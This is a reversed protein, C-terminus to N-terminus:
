VLGESFDKRATNLRNNSDVHVNTTNKNVNVIPAAQPAPAQVNAAMAAGNQRIASLHDNQTALHGAMTKLLAHTTTDSSESPGTPTFNSAIQSAAADVAGPSASTPAAGKSDPAASASQTQAAVLQGGQQTQAQTAVQAPAGNGGDPAVPNGTGGGGGATATQTGSGGGPAAVTGIQKELGLAVGIRKNAEVALGAQTTAPVEYRNSILRAASAVDQTQKLMEGVRSYSPSSRLEWDVADLQGKLDLALVSPVHFQKQIQAQRATRWQAIGKAVGDPNIAHPDLKSESVLNAVIGTAQAQTWGKGVLYSIAEKARAAVDKSSMSPHPVLGGWASGDMGPSIQAGAASAAETFKFEGGAALKNAYNEENGIQSMAKVREDASKGVFQASRLQFLKRLFESDSEDETFEAALMKAAAATGMQTATSWIAFQIAQSKSAREVLGKPLKKLVDQYPKQDSIKQNDMYAQVGSAMSSDAYTQATNGSTLVSRGLGSPDMAGPAIVAGPNAAANKQMQAMAAMTGLTDAHAQSFGLSKTFKSWLGDKGPILKGDPGVKAKTGFIAHGMGTMGAALYGAGKSVIDMNAVVAGLAAGAAAGWPGFYAGMAGYSAMDAATHGLRNSTSGASTFHNTLADIGYGAIAGLGLKTSALKFGLKPILKAGGWLGKAGLKATGLAAKGGLGLLGSGLGFLGSTAFKTAGWLGKGGLKAAGMLGRGVVPATAGVVPGALNRAGWGVLGAGGKILGGAGRALATGFRYGARGSHIPLRKKRSFIGKIRGLGRRIRGPSRGASRGARARGRRNRRSRRRNRDRSSGGDFDDGDDDDDGNGLFRDLLSRSHHGGSSDEDEDKTFFHLLKGLIGSQKRSEQVQEDRQHTAEDEDHRQGRLRSLLSDYGNTRTPHPTGSDLHRDLRDLVSLLLNAGHGRMSDATNFVHESTPLIRDRLAHLSPAVREAVAERVPEPVHSTVRSAVNEYATRANQQTLTANLLSGAMTPRFRSLRDRLSQVPHPDDRFAETAQRLRSSANRADDRLEETSTPINQAVRTATDNWTHANGYQQAARQARSSVRQATERVDTADPIHEAMSTAFANWAGPSVHRRALDGVTATVRHSVEDTTPINSAVRTALDNWAHPSVYARATKTASEKVREVTEKATRTAADRVTGGNRVPSEPEAPKVSGPNLNPQTQGRILKRGKISGPAQPSGCCCRDLQKQLLDIIDKLYDLVGSQYSQMDPVVFSTNASPSGVLGAAFSATTKKLQETASTTASEAQPAAKETRIGPKVKALNPEDSKLGADSLGVPNGFTDTQVSAGGATDMFANIMDSISSAPLVDRITKSLARARDKTKESPTYKDLASTASSVKDAVTDAASKIVGDNLKETKNRIQAVTKNLLSSVYTRASDALENLDSKNSFFDATKRSLPQTIYQNIRPKAYSAIGKRMTEVTSATWQRRFEARILGLTSSKKADPAGTNIKIAELKSEIVKGLQILNSSVDNLTTNQHYTLSLMKRMYNATVARHFQYTGMSATATTQALLYSSPQTRRQASPTTGGGGGTAAEEAARGQDHSANMMREYNFQNSRFLKAAFDPIKIRPPTLILKTVDDEQLSFLDASSRNSDVYQSFSPTSPGSAIGNSDLKESPVTPLSPPSSLAEDLPSSSSEYDDAM